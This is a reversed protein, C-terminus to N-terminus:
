AAVRPTNDNHLLELADDATMAKGFFGQGYACGKLALRQLVM